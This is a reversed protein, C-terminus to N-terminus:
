SIKFSKPKKRQSSKKSAKTYKQMTFYKLKWLEEKAKLYKKIYIALGCHSVGGQKTYEFAVNCPLYIQKIRVRAKCNTYLRGIISERERERRWPSLHFNHCGSITRRL